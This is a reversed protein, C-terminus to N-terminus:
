IIHFQGPVLVCFFLSIIVSLCENIESYQPQTCLLPAQLLKTQRCMKKLFNIEIISM